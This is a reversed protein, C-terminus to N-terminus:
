LTADQVTWNNPIGSAGRGWSSMAPNKVFTGSSSVGNVWNSTCDEASIDTALCKISNLNTCGGFMIYYCMNTLTTAPLEPATTLSTCGQFMAWYCQTALTTAPLAPATTLRTCVGFMNNYCANALTTAPLEPAMTLGTCYNFMCSYCNNSLSTAPLEPATTLTTASFMGYYCWSALNTAPLEPASTINCGRFMCYYCAYALTTAPLEPLDNSTLNICREFMQRYCYDALTTAPLEPATKLGSCNNFMSRYCQAALTTAPLIMNKANIINANGSFLDMFAYDKGELSTQGVFNDGYVLSMINGKVDFKGTSTFKGIGGSSQPVCSGKFMISNGSAITPTNANNSLTTWTIGSNTSYSLRNSTTSGSFKFTGSERATFKLYQNEFDNNEVIWGNPIGNNGRTWGSMNANKIFTGSSAVGYVWYYTCNSSNFSTALCEIYNLNTCYMFMGYYSNEILTTAPLKPARTLSSCGRFMESYCSTALTTAPLEPATTLGTCGYFMSRYCHGALTTAPLEPATTLSTCGNFMGYYCQTALTTAPLAPASTLSTCNSFMYQYCFSALTTAPLALKNANVMGYCNAFFYYFTCSSNLSKLSKFNSSDILSMINGRVNFRCNTDTSFHSYYAQNYCYTQNNGRFRIMDGAEVSIAPASNGTNSTISEWAKNNKSYEITRAYVSNYNNMEWYITGSSLIQFTLYENKDNNNEVYEFTVATNTPITVTTYASVPLYFQFSPANINIQSTTGSVYKVKIEPRGNLTEQSGKVTYTAALTFVKISDDNPNFYRKRINKSMSVGPVVTVVNNGDGGAAQEHSKFAADTDYLRLNRM